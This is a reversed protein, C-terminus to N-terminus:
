RDGARQKISREGEKRHKESQDCWGHKILLEDDISVSPSDNGGVRQSIECKASINLIKKHGDIAV